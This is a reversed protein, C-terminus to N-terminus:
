REPPRCHNKYTNVVNSDVTSLAYTAKTQDGTNGTSDRPFLDSVWTKRAQGGIQDSRIRCTEKITGSRFKDTGKGTFDPGPEPLLYQPSFETPDQYIQM